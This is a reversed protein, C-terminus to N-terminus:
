QWVSTIHRKKQMTLLQELTFRELNESVFFNRTRSSSSCVTYARYTGKNLRLNIEENYLCNGEVLTEGNLECISFKIPKDDIDKMGKQYLEIADFNKDGENFLDIAKNDEFLLYLGHEDDYRFEFQLLYYKKDYKLDPIEIKNLGFVKNLENIDRVLGKDDIDIAAKYIPLIVNNYYEFISHQILTQNKFIFNLTKIQEKTPEISFSDTELYVEIIKKKNKYWPCYNLDELDVLESISTPQFCWYDERIETKEFTLMRQAIELKGLNGGVRQHSNNDAIDIFSFAM